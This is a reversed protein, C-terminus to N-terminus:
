EQEDDVITDEEMASEWESVSGESFWSNLSGGVSDEGEQVTRMSSVSMSFYVSSYVSSLSSESSGFMVTYLEHQDAEELELTYPPLALFPLVNNFVIDSPLVLQLTTAIHGDLIRQHEARYHIIERLVSRIWGRMALVKNGVNEHDDDDYYGASARRLDRNSSNIAETMDNRWGELQLAAIFQHIEGEVLDVHKLRECLQFIDDAKIISVKLPITIRELSTCEYFACTEIRELKNSFTADVLAQSIAFSFEGVIRASPLNISELSICNRFAEQGIRELKGCEVDTVAECNMFAKREVIEVGPMIVRRLSPCTYFAAREITEVRDHCIIEVIKRHGRFARALVVTVDEGVIIHTAGDPIIEGEEGRYVYRIFNNDGEAAM